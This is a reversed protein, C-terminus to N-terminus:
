REGFVNDAEGVSSIPTAPGSSTASRSESTSVRSLIQGLSLDGGSTNPTVNTLPLSPLATTTVRHMFPNSGSLATASPSSVLSKQLAAHQQEEAEIM